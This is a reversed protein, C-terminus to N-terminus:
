DTAWGAHTPWPGPPPQAASGGAVQDHHVGDTESDARVKVGKPVAVDEPEPEPEPEPEAVKRRGLEWWRSPRGRDIKQSRNAGAQENLLAQLALERAELDVSDRISSSESASDSFQSLVDSERLESTMQSRPSLSGTDDDESMQERRKQLAILFAYHRSLSPPGQLFLFQPDQICKVHDRIACYWTPARTQILAM